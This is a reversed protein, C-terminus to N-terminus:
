IAYNILLVITDCKSCVDVTETLPPHNNGADHSDKSM